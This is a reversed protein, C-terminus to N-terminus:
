ADYKEEVRGFLISRRAIRFLSLARLKAGRGETHVSDESEVVVFMRAVRFGVFILMFTFSNSERVM